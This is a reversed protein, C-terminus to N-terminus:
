HDPHPREAPALGAQQPYLESIEGKPTPSPGPHAASVPILVVSASRSVKQLLKKARRDQDPSLHPLLARDAIEYSRTIPTSPAATVLASAACYRAAPQHDSVVRDSHTRRLAANTAPCVPRCRSRASAGSRRQGPRSNSWAAVFRAWRAAPGPRRARHRPRPTACPCSPWERGAPPSRVSRRPRGDPEARAGAHAFHRLDQPRARGDDHDAVDIPERRRFLRGCSASGFAERRDCEAIGSVRRRCGGRGVAAVPRDGTPGSSTKRILEM